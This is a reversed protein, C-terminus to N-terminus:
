VPVFEHLPGIVFPSSVNLLPHLAAKREGGQRDDDDKGGPEDHATLSRLREEADIGGIREEVVRDDLVNAEVKIGAIPLREAGVKTVVRVVRRIEAPAVLDDPADADSRAPEASAVWDLGAKTHVEIV